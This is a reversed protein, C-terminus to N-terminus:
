WPQGVRVGVGTDGFCARGIVVKAEGVRSASRGNAGDGQGNDWALIEVLVGVQEDLVECSVM